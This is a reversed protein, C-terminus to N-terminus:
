QLYRWRVTLYGDGPAFICKEGRIIADMIENYAKEAHDETDYIIDNKVKSSIEFLVSPHYYGRYTASSISICGVSDTNIAATAIDNERTRIWM